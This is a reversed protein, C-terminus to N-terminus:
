IQSEGVYFTQICDGRERSPSLNPYGNRGCEIGHWNAQAVSILGRELTVLIIPILEISVM